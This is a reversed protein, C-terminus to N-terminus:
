NGFVFELVYTLVFAMNYALLRTATRAVVGSWSRAGPHNIRFVTTLVSGATEILRRAKQLAYALAEPWKNQQNKRRLPRLLVNQERRLDTELDADNYAKDGVALKDHYTRLLEPTPTLDHLAGPALLWSDV